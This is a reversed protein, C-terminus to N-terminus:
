PSTKIYGFLYPELDDPFENPNISYFSGASAPTWYLKITKIGSPPEAYVWGACPRGDGFCIRRMVGGTPNEWVFGERHNSEYYASKNRADSASTTFYYKGDHSNFLHWLELNAAPIPAPEKEDTKSGDGGGGGGGGGGGASGGAGGGAGSDGSAQSASPETARSTTPSRYGDTASEGASLSSSAAGPGAFAYSGGSTARRSADPRRDKKDGARARKQKDVPAPEDVRGATPTPTPAPPDGSPAGAAVPTPPETRATLAGAAGVSLLLLAAAAAFPSRWRPRRRRPPAPAVLVPRQRVQTRAETDARHAAVAAFTEASPDTLSMATEPWGLERQGQQLASGMEEATQFRGAPEKSMATEMVRCLVDPVGQARLDPVPKSITRAILAQLGPHEDSAFAARATILTFLTSGLAYIDVAPTPAADDLIEPAAHALSATIAGTHTQYGGPVSAVGFDALKPEGYGSLLLNEPKIDRHLIGARHATEVAGAVKVIVDVAAAVSLAGNTAIRNAFSGGAIHDMVIFPRGWPTIGSDYIAVIHPHGSLTAIARCEREFRRATEDKLGTAMLVKIAVDRELGLQTALYVRGFGGEGLPRVIKYGPVEVEDVPPLFHELKDYPEDASM